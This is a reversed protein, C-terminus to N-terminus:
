LSEEIWEKKINILDNSYIRSKIEDYNLIINRLCRNEQKIFINDNANILNHHKLELFNLIDEFFHQKDLLFNEYYIELFTINNDLMLKKVDTYEKMTQDCYLKFENFCINVQLESKKTMWINTLLAIKHSLFSKLLNKRRLLLNKQGNFTSLIRFIDINKKKAYIFHRLHSMTGINENNKYFVKNVIENLNDNEVNNAIIEDIELPEKFNIRIGPYSAIYSMIAHTGMRPNSLLLFRNSGTM